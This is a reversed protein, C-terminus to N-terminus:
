PHQGPPTSYKVWRKRDGLVELTCIFLGSSGLTTLERIKTEGNVSIICDLFSQAEQATYFYVPANGGFLTVSNVRDQKPLERLQAPTLSFWGVSFTKSLETM